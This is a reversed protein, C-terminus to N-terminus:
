FYKAEFEYFMDIIQTKLRTREPSCCRNKVLCEVFFYLSLHILYSQLHQDTINPLNPLFFNSSDFGSVFVLCFFSRKVRSSLEGSFLMSDLSKSPQTEKKIKSFDLKNKFINLKLNM